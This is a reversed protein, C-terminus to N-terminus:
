QYMLSVLVLNWVFELCIGFELSWFGFLNLFVFEFFM